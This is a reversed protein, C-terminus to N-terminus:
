QHSPSPPNGATDELNQLEEYVGEAIARVLCTLFSHENSSDFNCTDNLHSLIAAEIADASTAM